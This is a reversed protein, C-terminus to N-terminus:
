HEPNLAHPNGLQRRAVLLDVQNESAANWGFLFWDANFVKERIAYGKKSDTLDSIMMLVDVVPSNCLGFNRFFTGEVFSIGMTHSDYVYEGGFSCEGQTITIKNHTLELTAGETERSELAQMIDYTHSEGDALPMALREPKAHEAFTSLVFTLTLAIKTFTM